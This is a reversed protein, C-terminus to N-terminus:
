CPPCSNAAAAFVSRKFSLASLVQIRRQKRVKSVGFFCASYKVIEALQSECRVLTEWM